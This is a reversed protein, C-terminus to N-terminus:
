PQSPDSGEEARAYRQHLEVLASSAERRRRLRVNLFEVFVSFGIAFYIYDKPIHQDVGELLLALGILLLFSLALMKLTPHRNVLGAVAEASFLMVLIAVTVAAIMVSIQEVMGVATIMSDLSFVM